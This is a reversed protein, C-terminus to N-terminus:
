KQPIPAHAADPHAGSTWNGQSLACRFHQPLPAEIQIMWGNPHRFSVSQAHLYLRDLFGFQILNRNLKLDGHKKDGIIPHRIKDFHLRIQHYRGTEPMAKVLSLRTTPYRESPLSLDTHSITQFKTLADRAATQGESVLPLDIIGESKTYGRALLLYSKSVERNNFQERINSLAEKTKTLIVVGSTAKDLRHAPFARISHKRQLEELLNTTAYFDLNTRHVLLNNPKSVILLQKDEYLVQIDTSPTM